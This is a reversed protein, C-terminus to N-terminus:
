LSESKFFADYTFLYICLRKAKPVLFNSKHPSSLFTLSICPKILCIFDLQREKFYWEDPIYHTEMREWEEVCVCKGM